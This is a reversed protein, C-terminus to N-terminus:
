LCPCGFLDLSNSFDIQLKNNTYHFIQRYPERNIKFAVLDRYGVYYNKYKAFVKLHQNDEHFVCDDWIMMDMFYNRKFTASKFNGFEFPIKRKSALLPPGYHFYNNNFTLVVYSESCEDIHFLVDKVTIKQMGKEFYVHFTEGVYHNYDKTIVHNKYLNEFGKVHIKRANTDGEFYTNQEELPINKLLADDEVLLVIGSVNDNFEYAGYLASFLKNKNFISTYMGEIEKSSKLYGDFVYSKSNSVSDNKIIVWKGKIKLGNDNVSLTKATSELISVESRYPIKTIKKGKLSPQDRVTLGNLATVYKKEQANSFALYFLLLILNFQKM